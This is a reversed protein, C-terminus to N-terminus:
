LIEALSKQNMFLSEIRDISSKIEQIIEERSEKPFEDENLAKLYIVPLPVGIKVSISKLLEVSPNKAGTEVESLFSRSIGLMEAFDVQRYGRKKRMTRIVFGFNKM